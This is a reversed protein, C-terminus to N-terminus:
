ILVTPSLTCKNLPDNEGLEGDIDEPEVKIVSEKSRGPRTKIVKSSLSDPSSEERKIRKRGGIIVHFLNSAISKLHTQRTQVYKNCDARIKFEILRAALKLRM